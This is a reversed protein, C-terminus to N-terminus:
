KVPWRPDRSIASGLQAAPGMVRLFASRCGFTAYRQRPRRRAARTRRLGGQLNTQSTAAPRLVTRDRRTEVRADVSMGPRLRAADAPGTRCQEVNLHM